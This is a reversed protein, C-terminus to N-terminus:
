VGGGGTASAGEGARIPAGEAEVRAWTTVWTWTRGGPAPAAGRGLQGGTGRMNYRVVHSFRRTALAARGPRTLGLFPLLPPPTRATGESAKRRLATAVRLPWANPRSHCIRSQGQAKPEYPYNYLYPTECRWGHPRRPHVESSSAAFAAAGSPAAPSCCWPALPCRGDVRGRAKHSTLTDRGLKRGMIPSGSGM